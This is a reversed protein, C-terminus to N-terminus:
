KRARVLQTRPGLEITSFHDTSRLSIIARGDIFSGLSLPTYTRGVRQWNAYLLVVPAEEPISALGFTIGTDVYDFLLPLVTETAPSRSSIQAYSSTGVTSPDQIWEDPAGPGWMAWGPAVHISRRGWAFFRALAQGEYIRIGSRRLLPALYSVTERDILVLGDHVPIESQLDCFWHKIGEPTTGLGGESSMEQATPAGLHPAVRGGALLTTAIGLVLCVRLLLPSQRSVCTLFLQEIAFGVVPAVALLLFLSHRSAGFPYLSILALLGTVLYLFTAISVLLM